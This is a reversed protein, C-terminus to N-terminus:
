PLATITEAYHCAVQRGAVSRLMPRETRCRQDRLPHFCRPAFPCGPPPNAPSPPEGNLIIRNGGYGPEPEPVASVLAQTYPHRPSSIILQSPGEEVITGLYMVAIRDAITAVVALDHAIFLYSLGRRDRLDMLLNLIQAQVSVDLASVPEDCVLLAPEVALARAIGVRQRQGGSLEHPFREALSPDLGVEELLSVVRGSLNDPSVLHHIRLGEAVSASIRKRPNLSSSPDQFVIQMRRRVQRLQEPQLSSLEAGDFYVKGSTPPDLYLLARAVTSKGSGSEGVLGLTEGVAIVLSVDEVAHVVSRVGFLFGGSQFRKVLHEVRLLPETVKRGRM